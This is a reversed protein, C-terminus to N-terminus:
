TMVVAERRRPRRFARRMVWHPVPTAGARALTGADGVARRALRLVKRAGAYDGAERAEFAANFAARRLKSRLDPGLSGGETNFAHFLSLGHDDPTAAEPAPAVPGPRHALRAMLEYLGGLRALWGAGTHCARVRRACEAGLERRRVPSRVLASIEELYEHETPAAAVLGDYAEDQTVLLQSVPAFAPVPALGCLG